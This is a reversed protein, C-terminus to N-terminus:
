RRGGGLVTPRPEVVEFREAGEEIVIKRNGAVGQFRQRIGSAPWWVDIAAAEKATGLGVHVVLPSVGFSGGTSVTRHITRRGGAPDEVTVAVRAGVASRNSTRGVLRIALWGNGHGPNEFLRM